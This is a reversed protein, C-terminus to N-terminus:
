NRWSHLKLQPGPQHLLMTVLYYRKIHKIREGSFFLCILMCHMEDGVNMKDSWLPIQTWGYPIIRTFHLIQAVTIVFEKFIGYNRCKSSKNLDSNWKQYFQNKLTEAVIKSLNPTPM